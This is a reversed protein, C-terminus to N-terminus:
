IFHVYRIINEEAAVGDDIDANNINVYRYHREKKRRSHIGKRIFFACFLILPLIIIMMELITTLSDNMYAFGNAQVMLLLMVGDLGNLLNSQYPQIWMHISAIVVCATQLYLATGYFNSNLSYAILFIVQRCILYYAAFWRYKDKYCGQFQDLLPKIRIFNIKRSLFPQLLLLLPLGIGVVLECIIAVVGYVAHRGHFYQINPSSYTYWEKVDTFRLPQLLQLSTSVMSTYSLLILLCIARIICRSVFLTIRASWRAAVVILLLLLSVGVAHSYHIFLQDIGSLGEVFCLKGLFQPTLQAFSSLVSAFQFVGDSLNPNNDLLIRIISYYYILGNLYGLSIQFKLYMLAFVGAVIAIWYLCTLIIVLVTWGPGCQHVSICDTSDYSLTYGSCCEGCARGVRHNNCQGDITDPLEFYGQRTETRGTFKCYHHCPATTATNSVSGFWYGRKIENYSDHCDVNHHYCVCAKHATSYTYGPHDICPILEVVLTATIEEISNVASTFTVKINIINETYAGTFTVSLSSINDVLLLTKPLVISSSCNVCQVIFQTPQAPIGFYDFVNGTFKVPYGLVNSRICYINHDSTPSLNYGENFPFYLRLEHPSTVIPAGTGNLLTYDLNCPIAMMKGNVLQSYNFKCPIYLISDTNGINKETICHTPAYFYLSNGSIGAANNVFSVMYDISDSDDFPNTPCNYPLDIQIAGGYETALNNIFQVNTRRFFLQSGQAMYVAGGNGATNNAFIVTGTCELNSNLLYISSATNDTFNSSRVVLYMNYLYIVSYHGHNYHFKSNQISISPQENSYDNDYSIYLATGHDSYTSTNNFFECEEILVAKIDQYSADFRINVTGGNDGLCKNSMVKVRTFNVEPQHNSSLSIAITVCSTMINHSIEVDVLTIQVMSTTPMLSLIFGGYYNNTFNSNIILIKTKGLRELHLRELEEIMDSSTRLARGYADNVSHDYVLHNVSHHDVSDRNYISIIELLSGRFNNNINLERLEITQNGSMALSIVNFTNSHFITKTIIVHWEGFTGEVNLLYTTPYGNCSCNNDYFYSESINLHVLVPYNPLSYCDIRIVDYCSCHQRAFQPVRSSLFNCHHVNVNISLGFFAVSSVQSHQFTCNVLSISNTGNFTLGAINIGNPDGCRDWTIGEIMVHDCSECYVSGSNNCMIIVNSGTITINTLNGSGSTCGSGLKVREDLMVSSSTINITTNSNIYQLAISLSACMCGEETCCEQSSNDSTINVTIVKSYVLQSTLTILYILVGVKIM